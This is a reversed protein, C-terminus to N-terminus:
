STLARQLVGFAIRSLQNFIRPFLLVSGSLLGLAALMKLPMALSYIQLQSNLRGIMGLSLDVLLLMTMIPLVLRLATTFITAGFMVLMEAHPRTMAFAGPPASDLTASLITIVTRDGGAAFFLVAGILQAMVVLVTSDANTTPDVTSAYSFGAQVSILQAASVFVELVFSVALGIALGFVLESLM